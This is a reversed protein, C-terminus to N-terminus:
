HAPASGAVEAVDINPLFLSELQYRRSGKIFVSGAHTEFHTRLAALSDAATVKRRGAGEVVAAAAEAAAL